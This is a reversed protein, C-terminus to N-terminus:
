ATARIVEEKDAFEISNMVRGWDSMFDTCEVILRQRGEHTAEHHAVLGMAVAYLAEMNHKQKAREIFGNNTNLRVRRDLPEYDGIRNKEFSAWDVKLGHRRGAIGDAVVSGPKDPHVKDAKSRRRPSGVPEVRGTENEASRRKERVMAGKIGANVLGEIETLLERSEIDLALADAKKCLSQIRYHIAVDLGDLNDSLDDKNRTLKWGDGLVITGTLRASSYNGVGITSAKIVRHGYCLLFGPYDIKQGDRVIGINISTKRGGVEFTDQVCELFMPLKYPELPKRGQGSKGIVIQRGAELAPMFTMCLKAITGADPRGQRVGEISIRTGHEGNRAACEKPDPGEWRGEREVFDDICVRLTRKVKQHVTSIDITNGSWLWADKLGRGYHGLSTTRHKKHAGFRLMSLVDPAGTGDDTVTLTKSGFDILVQCADADLANDIMEALANHWGLRSNREGELTHLLPTYIAM